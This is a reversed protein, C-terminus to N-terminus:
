KITGTAGCEPCKIKLPREESTIPISSECRPCPIDKAGKETRVKVKEPAKKRTEGPKSGGSPKRGASGPKTRTGTGTGGSKGTGSSSGRSKFLIAVVVLLVLVGGGIYIATNDDGSSSGTSDDGTIAVNLTKTVTKDDDGVSTAKLKMSHIDVEANETPTIILILVEFDDPEIAKKITFPLSESNYEASWGSPLDEVSIEFTDETNGKNTVTVTFEV